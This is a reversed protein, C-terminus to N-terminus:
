CNWLTMQNVIHFIGDCVLFLDLCQQVNGYQSDSFGLPPTMIHVQKM